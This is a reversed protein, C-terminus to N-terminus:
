PRGMPRCPKYWHLGPSLTSFSFLPPWFRLTAKQISGSCSLLSRHHPRAGWACGGGGCQGGTAAEAKWPSILFCNLGGIGKKRKVARVDHIQPFSVSYEEYRNRIELNEHSISFYLLLGSPQQLTSPSLIQFIVLYFIFGEGLSFFLPVAECQWRGQEHCPQWVPSM